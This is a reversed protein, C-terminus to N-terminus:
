AEETQTNTEGAVLKELRDIEHWGLDQDTGIYPLVEGPHNSAFILLAALDTDLMHDLKNIVEFRMYGNMTAALHAYWGAICHATGCHFRCMVLAEPNERVNRVLQATIGPHTLVEASGGAAVWSDALARSFGRQLQEDDSERVSDAAKLVSSTRHHYRLSYYIRRLPEHEGVYYRGGDVYKSDASVLGVFTSLMREITVQDDLERFSDGDPGDPIAVFRPVINRMSWLAIRRAFETLTYELEVTM